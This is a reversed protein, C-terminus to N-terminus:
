TTSSRRAISICIRPVRFFDGGRDLGGTGAQGSQRPDARDDSRSDGGVYAVHEPKGASIAEDGVVADRRDLHGRALARDVPQAPAPVPPEGVGDLRGRDGLDAV